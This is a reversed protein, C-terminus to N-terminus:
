AVPAVASEVLKILAERAGALGYIPLGLYQERAVAACDECPIHKVNPGTVGGGVSFGTSDEAHHNIGCLLPGPTGHAKGRVLHVNGVPKCDVLGGYHCQVTVLSEM